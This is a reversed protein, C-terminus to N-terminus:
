DRLSLVDAVKRALKEQMAASPHGDPLRTAWEADTFFAPFELCQVQDRAFLAKMAPGLRDTLGPYLLVYFRSGPFTREFAVRSERVLAATLELVNKTLPPWEIGSNRVAHSKWLLRYVLNRVPRAEDFTGACTLQGGSLTYCPFPACWLNYLRFSGIARYVHDDCFVYIGIGDAQAIRPKVMDRVLRMYMQQPGHAPMGFNYPAYDPAYKGLFFPLTEADNLGEGFALSDAFVAVFRRQAGPDAVPTVRLGNADITYVSHMVVRGERTSEQVVQAGHPFETGLECRQVPPTSTTVLPPAHPVLHYYVRAGAEVAVLLFVLLFLGFLVAFVNPHRRAHGAWRKIITNLM